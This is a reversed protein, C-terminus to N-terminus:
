EPVNDLTPAARRRMLELDSHIANIAREYDGIFTGGGGGGGGKYSCVLLRTININHKLKLKTSAKLRKFITTSISSLVGKGRAGYGEYQGGL